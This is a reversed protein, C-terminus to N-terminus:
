LPLARTSNRVGSRLRFIIADLAGRANIRKRGTRRPPDYKALIPKIIDWLEDPVHWITPLPKVTRKRKAM